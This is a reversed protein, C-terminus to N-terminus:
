KRLKTAELWATSRAVSAKASAMERDTQAAREQEQAAALQQNAHAQDITDVHQAEDVLLRVTDPTIEALGTAIVYHDMEATTDGAQRRVSVVGLRTVTTLPTHHPLIGLDGGTTPVIVEAVTESAVHGGPTLIDFQLTGAM